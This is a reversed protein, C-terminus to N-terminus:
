VMEGLAEKVPRKTLFVILLINYTLGLLVGFVSGVIGGVREPGHMMTNTSFTSMTVVAGILNIVCAFAAYYVALKRAWSKFKCLGIGSVLMLAAGILSIVSSVALWELLLPRDGFQKAVLPIGIISFPACLLGLSGLVINIIGFVKIAGPPKINGALPQLPATLPTLGLAEAFETYSSLPKWGADGEFQVPTDGNVRGETIWQRLQDATVSGYEKQDAGIIKYM